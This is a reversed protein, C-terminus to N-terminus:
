GNYTNALLIFTSILTNRPNLQSAHFLSVLPWLISL